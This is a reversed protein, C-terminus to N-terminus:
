IANEASNGIFFHRSAKNMFGVTKDSEQVKIRLRRCMNEYHGFLMYSGESRHPFLIRAKQAFYLKHRGFQGFLVVKFFTEAKDGVVAFPRPLRHVMQMVVQKAAPPHVPRRASLRVFTKANNIEGDAVAPAPASCRRCDM